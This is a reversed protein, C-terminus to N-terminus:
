RSPLRRGHSEIAVDEDPTEPAIRTCTAHTLASSSRAIVTTESISSSCPAREGRLHFSRTIEHALQFDTNQRHGFDNSIAREGQYFLMAGAVSELEAVGDNGCCCEIVIFGQEGAVNTMEAGDLGFIM